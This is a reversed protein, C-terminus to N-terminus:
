SAKRGFFRNIRNVRTRYAGRIHPTIETAFLQTRFRLKDLGTPLKRGGTKRSEVCATAFEMYSDAVQAITPLEMRNRFGEIDAAVEDIATVLETETKFLQGAQGVLEPHGGSDMAIAPLGSHLAELLSNSCPDNRSATIFVDHERLTEAIEQSAMPPIHRINAFEIPSNGIFTMEYKTWDLHRDLYQYYAFGKGWNASWSTAILRIKDGSVVTDKRSFIDALPANVVVKHLAHLNLNRRKAEQRSWETQYLTGDAFLKNAQVILHDVFDDQGRVAGIPGDVRHIIGLDPNESQLQYLQDLYKASKGFHHSNFLLADAQEPTEAYRGTALLQHRLAGLFQNGGGWPGDKFEYLIHLKM